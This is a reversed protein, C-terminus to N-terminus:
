VEERTIERFRPGVYGEREVRELFMAKPRVWIDHAGYLAQYIVVPAQTESDKGEHLVVYKGGKFHAFYRGTLDPEPEPEKVSPPVTKALVDELRRRRGFDCAQDYVKTMTIGGIRDECVHYLRYIIAAPSRNLTKAIQFIHHHYRMFDRILRETDLQSWRQWAEKPNEDPLPKTGYSVEEGSLQRLRLIVGMPTRGLEGTVEELTRRERTMEMLRAEEAPTWFKDKNPYNM